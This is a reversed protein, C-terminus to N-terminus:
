GRSATQRVDAHVMVLRVEVRRHDLVRREFRREDREDDGAAVRQEDRHVAVPAVAHEALRDVVRRALREVLDGAEEPEAVRATGRDIPERALAIGLRDPERPRHAGVTM